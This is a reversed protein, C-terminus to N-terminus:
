FSQFICKVIPQLPFDVIIPWYGRNKSQHITKFHANLDSGNRALPCHCIVFLLIRKTCEFGKLNSSISLSLYCATFNNKHV